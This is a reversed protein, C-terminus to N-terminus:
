GPSANWDFRTKLATGCLMHCCADLLRSQLIHTSLRSVVAAIEADYDSDSMCAIRYLFTKWWVIKRTAITRKENMRQRAEYVRQTILFNCLDNDLRAANIQTNNQLRRLQIHNRAQADTVGLRALM